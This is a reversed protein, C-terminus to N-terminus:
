YHSAIDGFRGTSFNLIYWEEITGLRPKETTPGSWTYAPYLGNPDSSDSAKTGLVPQLRGFEDVGEFLAVQRPIAGDAPIGNFAPILSLDLRKDVPYGEVVDFAMIRDTRRDEFVDEETLKYGFAGGFPADGGLNHMVIRQGMAQSMDIV